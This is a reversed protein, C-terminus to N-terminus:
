ADGSGDMIPTDDENPEDYTDAYRRHLVHDGMRLLGWAEIIGPNWQLFVFSSDNRKQLGQAVFICLDFRSELEKYLEDITADSLDVM